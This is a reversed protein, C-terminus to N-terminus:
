GAHGQPLAPRRRRADAAAPSAFALVLLTAVYPTMGTFERPVTDTLLYWVLFALGSRRWCSRRRDRAGRYLRFRPSPWCSSRRRAAAARPGLVPQAAAARRHLRVDAVGLVTGGPRWNGFIMAALGIYGRGNTQNTMFGSRPSWRSSRGASAPSRAPSWCPSTSTATSTSASPRRPRPTRAAPACGCASRPAGSCTRRDAVVLVVIIITLASVRRPSRRSGGAVDSVLFWHQDNLSTLGDSLGPITVYPLPDLGTLQQAGGDTRRPRRLVGRRPVADAGLAIINIAVGSVIHDVGFTITALAHLLGGLLASRPPGSSASGPATGTPSTRRAGPASCCRARSGSTSSAPASPGCAAWAPSCSRAPPSSRRGCRTPRPSTTPAPSWACPRARRRDRRAAGAVVAATCARSGAARRASPGASADPIVTSM